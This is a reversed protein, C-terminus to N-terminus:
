PPVAGAAPEAASGNAPAAGPDDFVSSEEEGDDKSSEKFGSGFMLRAGVISPPSLPSGAPWELDLALCAANDLKKKALDATFGPDRAKFEPSLHGRVLDRFFLSHGVLIVKDAATDHRILMLLRKFRQLM